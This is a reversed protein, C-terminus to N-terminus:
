PHLNICGRKFNESIAGIFENVLGAKDKNEVHFEHGNKLIMARIKVRRKQNITATIVLEFNSLLKLKTFASLHIINEPM